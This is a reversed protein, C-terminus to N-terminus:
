IKRTDDELEKIRKRIHEANIIDPIHIDDHSWSAIPEEYDYSMKLIEELEKIVIKIEKSTV